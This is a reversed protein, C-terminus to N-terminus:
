GTNFLPVKSVMLWGSPSFLRFNSLIFIYEDVIPKGLDDFEEYAEPGPYLDAFAPSLSPNRHLKVFVSTAIDARLESLHKNGWLGTKEDYTRSVDNRKPFVACFAKEVLLLDGAKIKKTCFIGRGHSKAACQRVEIPGIYDARDMDPTPFRSIAEDLMAAFDFHGKEEGLRALCRRLDRVAEQNKPYLKIMKTLQDASEKFRRLGYM